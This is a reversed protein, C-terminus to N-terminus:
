DGAYDEWMNNHTEVIEDVWDPNGNGDNDIFYAIRNDIYRTYYSLKNEILESVFRTLGAKIEQEKTAM